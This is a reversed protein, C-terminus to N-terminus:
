FWFTDGEKYFGMRYKACTREIIPQVTTKILYATNKILREEQKRVVRDLAVQILTPM